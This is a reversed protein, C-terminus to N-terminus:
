YVVVYLMLVLCGAAIFVCEQLKSCYRCVDVGLVANFVRILLCCCAVAM